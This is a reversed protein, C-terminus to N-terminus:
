QISVTMNQPSTNQGATLVVPQIGSALGPPVIANVQFAGYVSRPVLGSYVIDAEQGGISVSVPLVPLPYTGSNTVPVIDGDDHRQSLLGAGTGFIQLISGKLAPKDPSNVQNDTNLILGAGVGTQALTLIGPSSEAQPFRLPASSQQYRKVVVEVSSAGAVGAPVIANVQGLNGFLIPAPIGNFTITTGELDSPFYYHNYDPLKPKITAHAFM